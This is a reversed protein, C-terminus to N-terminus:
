RVVEHVIKGRSVYAGVLCTKEIDVVMPNGKPWEGMDLKINKPNIKKVIGQAHGHRPTGPIYLGDGVKVDSVKLDPGWSRGPALQPKTDIRDIAGMLGDQGDDLLKPGRRQSM